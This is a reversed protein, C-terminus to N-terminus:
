GLFRPSTSRRAAASYTAMLFAAMQYDPIEGRTYGDVLFSLEEMTLEEGDRKRTILDVSRM